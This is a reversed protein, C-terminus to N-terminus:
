YHQQACFDWIINPDWTNYCRNFMQHHTCGDAWKRFMPSWCQDVPAGWWWQFPGPHPNLCGAQVPHLPGGTEPPPAAMATGVLLDAITRSNTKLSKARAPADKGFVPDRIWQPAGEGNELRLFLICRDSNAYYKYELLNSENVKSIVTWGPDVQDHVTHWAFHDDNAKIQQTAAVNLPNRNDNGPADVRTRIDLPYTPSAQTAPNSPPTPSLRKYAGFAVALTIALAMAIRVWRPSEVFIVHVLEYPSGIGKTKPEANPDPLDPMQPAAM